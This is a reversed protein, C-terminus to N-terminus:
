ERHKLQIKNNLMPKLRHKGLWSSYLTFCHSFDFEQIKDLHFQVFISEFIRMAFKVRSHLNHQTKKETKPKEGKWEARGQLLPLTFILISPFLFKRTGLLCTLFNFSSSAKSFENKVCFDCFFSLLTPCTETLWRKCLYKTWWALVQNATECWHVIYISIIKISSM